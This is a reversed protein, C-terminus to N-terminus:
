NVNRPLQIDLSRRNAQALSETLASSLFIRAFLLFCILLSLHSSVHLPSATTLQRKLYWLGCVVVGM